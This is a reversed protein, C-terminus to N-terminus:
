AGKKQELNTNILGILSKIDACKRLAEGNVTIDFYEDILAISSVIALSDWIGDGLVFEDTLEEVEVELLDALDILFNQMSM